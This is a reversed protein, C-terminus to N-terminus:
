FPAFDNADDNATRTSEQRGADRQREYEAEYLVNWQEEIWDNGKGENEAQRFLRTLERVAFAWTEGDGDHYWCTSGPTIDDGTDCDCIRRIFQRALGRLAAARSLYRRGGEFSYVTAKSKVVRM